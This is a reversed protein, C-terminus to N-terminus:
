ACRTAGKHQHYLDLFERVKTLEIENGAMTARKEFAQAALDYQHAALHTAGLYYWSRPNEPDAELEMALAKLDDEYQKKPNKKRAGGEGSIILTGITKAIAGHPPLDEHIRGFWRGPYDKRVMWFRNDSSGKHRVDILFADVDIPPLVGQIVLEEDADIFMLYDQGEKLALEYAVNRAESFSGTWEWDYLAGPLGAEDMTHKIIAKTNDTSGTDVICWASIYPIVSRLCRAIVDQEDRVIMSLCVGGGGKSVIKQSTPAAFM